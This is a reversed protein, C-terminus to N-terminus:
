PKGSSPHQAAAGMAKRLQRMALDLHELAKDREIGAATDAEPQALLGRARTLLAMAKHMDGPLVGSEPMSRKLAAAGSDKAAIRVDKIATWLESIAKVQDMSEALGGGGNAINWKADRLDALARAYDPRPAAEEAGGARGLALLAAAIAM